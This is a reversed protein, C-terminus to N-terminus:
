FPVDSEEEPAHSSQEPQAPAFPQITQAPQVPRTASGNGNIPLVREAMVTLKSRKQKTQKDEWSDLKLRGEVLVSTGQKAGGVAEAAKAFATCSVFATDEKIDQGSKFQTTVAVDFKAYATGKASYRLEADRTLNGKIIVLNIASM